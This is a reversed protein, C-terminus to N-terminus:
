QCNGQKPHGIWGCEPDLNCSKKDLYSSCEATPPVSDDCDIECNINDEDGECVGDGCCWSPACDSCDPGEKNPHCIGDYKWCNEPSGGGPSSICDNPCNNCDEDPECTGDNDCVQPVCTDSGEDCTQGPCPDSGSQCVGSSCIEAGNCFLGDDCDNNTDCGQILSLSNIADIRGYGYAPDFGPDGMDIAGDRIIQRVEAPTLTPNASLILASLGTVHPAAMSTGCNGQITTGDTANSASYTLCGPATVDLYISNNSFCALDDTSPNNDTCSEVCIGFLYETCYSFSDLTPHECNSYNDDYTAGVSIVKSACAPSNMSNVQANNGASAVVVVGADVARNTAQAMPDTDCEETYALYSGLSLNIIDAQGGPLTSSACYDIGAIIDSANGGGESDLVKVGILTANPAVGQFSENGVCGFDVSLGLGGLAIGAVHSGHGHDDEPDQDNNVFDYGAAADIRESYMVHNTDIGTDVICIRVDSGDADLGADSIQSQSSRILPISDNLAIQVRYDEIVKLVGPISALSTLARQPIKRLNLVDPLIKYDYHVRGGTRDILGRVQLRASASLDKDKFKPILYVLVSKLEEDASSVEAESIRTDINYDGINLKETPIEEAMAKPLLTIGSITFLIPLYVLFQIISNLKIGKM